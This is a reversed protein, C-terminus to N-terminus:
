KAQVERKSKMQTIETEVKPRMYTIFSEYGIKQIETVRQEHYQSIKHQLITKIYKNNGLM